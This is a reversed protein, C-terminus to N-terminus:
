NIILPSSLRTPQWSGTLSWWKNQAYLRYKIARPWPSSCRLNLSTVAAISRTAIAQFGLLRSTNDPRYRASAPPMQIKLLYPPKTLLLFFLAINSRPGAPMSLCM